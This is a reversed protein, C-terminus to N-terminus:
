EPAEKRLNEELKEVIRLIESALTGNQNSENAMYISQANARIDNLLPTQWARYAARFRRSWRLRSHIRHVYAIMLLQASVLGFAAMVSIIVFQNWNTPALMDM